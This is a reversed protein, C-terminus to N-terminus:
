SVLRSVSLCLIRGNGFENLLALCLCVRYKATILKMWCPLVCECLIRDDGFENFWALCQCVYYEATVFKM